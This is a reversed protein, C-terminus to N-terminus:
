QVTVSKSLNRPKDVGCGRAVAIDYAFPQPPVVTLSFSQLGTPIKKYPIQCTLFIHSFKPRDFLSASLLSAHVRSNLIFFGSDLLDFFTAFAGDDRRSAL